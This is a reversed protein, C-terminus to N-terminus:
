SLFSHQRCITLSKLRRPYPSDKAGGWLGPVHVDQIPCLSGVCNEIHHDVTYREHSLTCLFDNKFSAMQALEFVFMIEVLGLFMKILLISKM